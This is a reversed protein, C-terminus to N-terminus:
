GERLLGLLVSDGATAKKHPTAKKSNKKGLKELNWFPGQYTGVRRAASSLEGRRGTEEEGGFSRTFGFEKTELDATM